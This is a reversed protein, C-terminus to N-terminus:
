KIGLVEQVLAQRDADTAKQSLVRAGLEQVKKQDFNIKNSPTVVPSKQSDEKSKTESLAKLPSQEFAELQSIGKEKAIIAVEDKVEAAFPYKALLDSQQRAADLKNVQAKLEEMERPTQTDVKTETRPSPQTVPKAILQDAWFQKAKDVTEGSSEAWKGVFLDFLKSKERADAVSQDGVLSNLNSLYKKAADIDDFKRGTSAEVLKLAEANPNAVPTQSSDKQNSVNSEPGGVVQQVPAPNPETSAVPNDLAKQTQVVDTLRARIAEESQAPAPDTSVPKNEIEM